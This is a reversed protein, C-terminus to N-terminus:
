GRCRGAGADPARGPGLGTHRHGAARHGRSRLRVAVLHCRGDDRVARLLQVDASRCGLGGPGGMPLAEGAAAVVVSPDLGAPDLGALVAPPLTVHTVQSANLTRLLAEGLRAEEPVIALSAGSLLGLWEWGFTDFGPSAFQAVRSGQGVGLWRQQGEILAGVGAHSVVVGKPAGTSGSTFMVYAAQELRLAGREDASLRGGALGALGPDNSLVVDIDDPLCDMTGPSAVAVRVGAQIIMSEIRAEPYTVDVPLYAAGAKLVGLLSVILDVGRELAVAVVSEAGVGRSLLARALRNARVEVEAFSVEVGDGVVAVAAPDRDVQAEFLEAVTGALSGAPGTGWSALRELGGADLM